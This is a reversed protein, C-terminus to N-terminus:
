PAPSQETAGNSGGGRPPREVSSGALATVMARVLSLFQRRQREALRGYLILLEEVNRDSTISELSLGIGDVPPSLYSDIAMMRRCEEALLAPDKTKLARVLVLHVKLVVILPAAIGQGAELRSIAGQSVGSLRALAEQSLGLFERLRREQRGLARMWRPWDVQEDETERPMASEM